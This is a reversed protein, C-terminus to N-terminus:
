RHLRGGNKEEGGGGESGLRLIVEQEGATMDDVGLIVDAGDAVHRNLVVLNGPNGRIDRAGCGEFHDVHLTQVDGGAQHVHVDVYVGAGSCLACVRAVEAEVWIAVGEAVADSRHGVGATGAPAVEGIELIADDIAGFGTNEGKEVDDAAAHAAAFDLLVDFVHVGLGGGVLGAFIGANDDAHLGGM